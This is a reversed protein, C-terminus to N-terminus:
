CGFKRKKQLLEEIEKDDKNVNTMIKRKMQHPGNDKSIKLDFHLSKSDVDDEKGLENELGNM